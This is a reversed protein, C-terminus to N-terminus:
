DAAGERMPCASGHLECVASEAPTLEPLPLRLAAMAERIALRVPALQEPVDVDVGAKVARSIKEIAADLKAGDARPLAPAVERLTPAVDTEWLGRLQSADPRFRQLAPGCLFMGLGNVAEGVAQALRAVKKDRDMANERM